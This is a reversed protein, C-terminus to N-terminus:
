RRAARSCTFPNSSAKPYSVVLDVEPQAHDVGTQAQVRQRSRRHNVLAQGVEGPVPRSRDDIRTRPARVHIKASRWPTADWPSPATRASRFRAKLSASVQARIRSTCRRIDGTAVAPVHGCSARTQGLPEPHSTLRRRQSIDRALRGLIQQREQFLAIGTM